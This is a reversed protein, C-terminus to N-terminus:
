SQNKVEIVMPSQNYELETIVLGLHARLMNLEELLLRDGVEYIDNSTFTGSLGPKDLLFAGITVSLDTVVHWHTGEGLQKWAAESMPGIIKTGIYIEKKNKTM